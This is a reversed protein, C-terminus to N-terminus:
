AHIWVFREPSLGAAELVDLQELAVRGRVTHSGVAANTAVAAEGAACLVKSETETLGDDGASVKVWGARVGTGEIDGHLEGIMWDRLEEPAAHQVWPPIWPERYVGTPVVLPMGTAESVAALVDARRGVGLTTPEVIATVPIARVRSIEPAVRRVVEETEAAGHEPSEWTRLDLFVHEHPLIVGLEGRGKPGLTTVLERPRGDQAREGTGSM